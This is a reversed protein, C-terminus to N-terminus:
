AKKGDMNRLRNATQSLKTWPIKEQWLYWAGFVAIPIFVVLHLIVGAGLATEKQVAFVSLSLVTLYHFVGIRGPSSPVAVGVQLVVLLFIAAWVDLKLGMAWFVLLNSFFGMVWILFSWSLFQILLKPQRVIDLSALAHQAQRLVWARWPSPILFSFRNLVKLVWASKWSLFFFMPIMVLLVIATMESPKSVWDPLAMQTLLLVVSLILFFLDFVKEVVITGLVYVKSDSNEEGMLYARILDGLRAPMINNLFISIMQIAFSRRMPPMGQTFLVRWRAAKAVLTLVSVLFALGLWGLGVQSFAQWLLSFNIERFALYLAGLSVLLGLWLQWNGLKKQGTPAGVLTDTTNGEIKAM